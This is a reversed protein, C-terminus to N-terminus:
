NMVDSGSLALATSSDGAKRVQHGQVWVAARLHGDHPHPEVAILDHRAMKGLVALYAVDAVVAADRQGEFGAVAFARPKFSYRTM